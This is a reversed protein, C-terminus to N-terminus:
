YPKIIIITGVPTHEYLDDIEENPLAICGNTWNKFRHFRGFPFGGNELGHIKIDGGTSMGNRLNRAIDDKNPYSIGLNKHWGSNPKKNFIFYEGEPTREDGQFQKAGTPNKGIAITYHQVLQNNSYVYMAQESKIVIIKDVVIGAPIKKYPYCYYVALGLVGASIILLTISIKRM